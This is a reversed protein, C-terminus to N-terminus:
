KYEKILVLDSISIGRECALRKGDSSWAFRFINDTDYETVQKAPGGEISQKWLNSVNNETVSYILARSDASWRLEQGALVPAEFQAIQSGGTFPIVVIKRLKTEQDITYFAIMEGDPSVVPNTSEYDTLEISEGGDILVKRLTKRGREFSTYVIWKGDPSINPTLEGRGSTLQKLNRGDIDMRWINPVGSRFSCFVVYRNDLSVTPFLDIAQDVTLQRQDNGDADMIWIDPNGSANSGYVIRNDSLWLIGFTESFNDSFGSNIEIGSGGADESTIWLRSHRTTQIALLSDKGLSVKSYKHLDNTIRHSQGDPYSLYWLQDTYVPSNRSWAPIVLGSGDELWAAKGIWNWEDNGVRTVVGSKVDIGVIKMGSSSSSNSRITAAIIGGDPSWAFGEPSLFDSKTFVILKQEGSGDRNCIILASEQQAPYIRAFAFQKGDPSFAVPSGIDELLKRPTGGLLPIEYLSSLNKAREYVVYYIRSSDPIISLGIIWTEELDLLHVKRTSDAQRLWISSKKGEQEAYVIYRGDRSIEALRIRGNTTLRSMKMKQFSPTSYGKGLLSYILLTANLIILTYVFFIYKYNKTTGNRKQVPESDGYSVPLDQRGEIDPIAQELVKETRDGLYSSQVPEDISDHIEKVPAIFRYGYKPVTEIYRPETSNDGLLKRLQSIYNTLNSEEVFSDPWLRSYFEEKSLIHSRKEVLLLLTDFVKPPLTVAKGDCTFLRECVNLRFQGFEYIQKAQILKSM